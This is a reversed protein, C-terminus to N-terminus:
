FINTIFSNIGTEIDEHEVMLDSTQALMLAIRLYTDTMERIMMFNIAESKNSILVM